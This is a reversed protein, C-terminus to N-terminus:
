EIDWLEELRKLREIALEEKKEAIIRKKEIEKKELQDVERKVVDRFGKELTSQLRGKYYTWRETKYEPPILDHESAYHLVHMVVFIGWANKVDEIKYNIRKGTDDHCIHTLLERKEVDLDDRSECWGESILSNFADLFKTTYDQWDLPEQLYYKYIDYMESYAFVFGRLCIDQRFFESMVEKKFAVIRESNSRIYREVEVRNSNEIRADGYRLAYFAQQQSNDISNENEYKRCMEIYNKIPHLNTLFYIFPKRIKKNFKKRIKLSDNHSLIRTGKILFDLDMDLLDLRQIQQKDNKKEESSFDEGILYSRMWNRLEINSFLYQSDKLLSADSNIGIWDITYLPPYSPNKKNDITENEHFASVLEQVCLCEISEDNLLISRADNVREAKMNIYMFIKRIISIFDKKESAQVKKNVILFVVPIQWETIDKIGDTVRRSEYLEKLATLRHQGDIAVVYCREDNWEIKGINGADSNQRFLRYTDKNILASGEINDFTVDKEYILQQLEHEIEDGEVPVLVLAIPNFYKVQSKDKFYSILGDPGGIREREVNRQFLDKIGWKESGPIDVLLKIADLERMKLSTQLYHIETNDGDGIRGTIGYHWNTFKEKRQPVLM